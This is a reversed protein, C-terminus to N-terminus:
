RGLGPGQVAPSVLKQAQLWGNFHEQAAERSLFETNIQQGNVYLIFKGDKTSVINPQPVPSAMDKEMAYRVLWFIACWVGPCWEPVM